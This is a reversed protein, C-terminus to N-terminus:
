DDRAARVQREPRPRALTGDAIRAGVAASVDFSADIRLARALAEGLPAGDALSALWAHEAAPLREVHVGDAHRQVLLREDEDCPGAPAVRAQWTRLIPGRGHVLRVDPQLPFPSAPLAEVPLAQMAAYVEAPSGDPDAARAAEDISWELRAVGSVHAADRVERWSALHDALGDGYVNLDGCTSPRAAVYADVLADFAAVGMLERVVPYTAALANRYNARVTRRYVALGADAADDRDVLRGAFARQLEALGSTTM